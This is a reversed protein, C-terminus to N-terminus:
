PTLGWLPGLAMCAALARRGWPDSLRQLNILSLNKLADGVALADSTGQDAASQVVGAVFNDTKFGARLQQFFASNPQDPQRAIMVSTGWEYVTYTYLIPDISNLTKPTWALAISLAIQFGPDDDPIASSDFPIARVYATFGALTPTTDAM